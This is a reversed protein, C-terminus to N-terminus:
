KEKGRPHFDDYDKRIKSKAIHTYIQTTSIDSHGLLEQVSRLDAGFEILHTAFSHRLTHPSFDKNIGKEKSLAKLIIFFGQRTLPMGHNNLFLINTLKKKLLQIRYIKIYEELYHLAIDGLPIMREKSGKGMCRLIAMELNIDELKLNVLESVRLGTAYIVELMTKNRFEFANKPKIDLLKDVEEVSLVEPLHKGIKPSDLDSTINEKLINERVLYKHFSKISVIKRNVSRPTINKSIEKIYDNIDNRKIINPNNIRKKKLFEIYNYLDNEYAAKTNNSLKKEIYIYNIFDKLYIDLNTNM